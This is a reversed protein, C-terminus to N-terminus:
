CNQSKLINLRLLTLASIVIRSSIFETYVIDKVYISKIILSDQLFIKFTFQSLSNLDAINEIIALM